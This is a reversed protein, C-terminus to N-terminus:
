MINKFKNVELKNYLIERDKNSFFKLGYEYLFNEGRVNILIRKNDYIRNLSKFLNIPLIMNFNNYQDREFTVGNLTIKLEVRHPIQIISMIIEYIENILYYSENYTKAKYLTLLKKFNLFSFGRIRVDEEKIDKYFDNIITSYKSIEETNRCLQVLETMMNDVGTDFITSSPSYLTFVHKLKDKKNKSLISILCNINKRKSIMCYIHDPDIKFTEAIDYIYLIQIKERKIEIFDSSLYEQVSYKIIEKDKTYIKFNTNVIVGFVRNDNLDIIFINPIPINSNSEKPNGIFIKNNHTTSITLSFSFSQKM